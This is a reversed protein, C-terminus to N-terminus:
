PATWLADIPIARLGDGFPLTQQGTYLVYGAMLRPGLRHSLHRLGALDESRVTAAATTLLGCLQRAYPRQPLPCKAALTQLVRGQQIRRLAGAQRSEPDVLGSSV